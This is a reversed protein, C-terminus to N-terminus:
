AALREVARLRASRSRPNRVVEAAGPRLPKRTLVEVRGVRGCRCQPLEPPCTCRGALDRMANKVLRDEGGHFSIVVLRGGPALVGVADAVFRDLGELERNVAIRLAQFVQTAPHLRAGRPPRPRAREVLEALQSTRTLPPDERRRRAIARAVRGPYPEDGLQRFLRALEAEELDRVLDAATPDGSSPDMRM